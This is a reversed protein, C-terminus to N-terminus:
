YVDISKISKGGSGKPTEMPGKFLVGCDETAKMAADTMGRTNGQDFVSRGMEVPVFDCHEMVGAAKFLELTADMIEPGIGDGKALAITVRSSM